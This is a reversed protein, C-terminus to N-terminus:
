PGLVNEFEAAILAPFEEPIYHDADDVVVWRDTPRDHKAAEWAAASVILSDSGRLHTMPATVALFEALWPTRFGDITQRMAEPDARPMWAGDPRQQYGWLARREVAAPLIRRYRSKLYDEIQRRDGFSRFGAAVRVGLEDIVAQEVYPTYDVVVAAAVREPFLAATVWANRGGLSHGGVVARDIALADLVVIVDKAYDSGTYGRDPKGSHGHGRQDLSIVTARDSLQNAVDAWVGHNASTGHLLVIAPGVGQVWFAIDVDAGRTTHMGDGLEEVGLTM